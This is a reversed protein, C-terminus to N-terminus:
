CPPGMANVRVMGSTPSVTVSPVMSRQSLFGPSGTSLYSGITSILVSLTFTSSGEGTEPVKLSIRTWSPSVTGTPASRAIMSSTAPSFGASIAGAGLSSAGALTAGAAAADAGAATAAGAFAGAFLPSLPAPPRAVGRTRLSAASSPTSRAATAPVPGFPRMTSSSTRAAADPAGAADAAARRPRRRGDCDRSAGSSSATATVLMRWVIACRMDADSKEAGCAQSAISASTVPRTDSRLAFRSANRSRWPTSRVYRGNM